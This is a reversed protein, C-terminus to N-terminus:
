FHYFKCKENFLTTLFRFNKFNWTKERNKYFIGPKNKLKGFELNQPWKSSMRITVKVVCDIFISAHM